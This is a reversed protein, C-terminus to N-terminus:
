VAGAPVTIAEHVEATVAPRLLVPTKDFEFGSLVKKVV